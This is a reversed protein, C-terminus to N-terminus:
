LVRQQLLRKYHCIARVHSLQMCRLIEQSIPSGVRFHKDGVCVLDRDVGTCRQLEEELREIVHNEVLSSNENSFSLFVAFEFGEEARRVREVNVDQRKKRQYRIIIRRGVVLVGVVVIVVLIGSICWVAITRPRNCVSQVHSVIDEDITSYKGDSNTCMINKSQIIRNNHAVIWTVTGLSSCDKCSLPNGRLDVTASNNRFMLDFKHISSTDILKIENRTVDLRKFLAGSTIFFNIQALINGSLDIVELRTNNSFFDSPLYSLMNNALSINVLNFLPKMLERFKTENRTSMLGLSNYSLDLHHLTHISALLGPSLFEINNEALSVSEIPPMGSLVEVDLYVLNNKKLSVEKLHFSINSVIRVGTINKFRRKGFRSNCLNDATITEANALPTLEDMNYPIDHINAITLDFFCVHLGPTIMGSMDFTRLKKCPPYKSGRAEIVLGTVLNRFIVTEIHDCHQLLSRLDSSVAQVDSLDIYSLSTKNVMSWFHDDLKLGAKGVGLKKMSLSQLNPIRQPALMGKLETNSIDTSNSIDLVQLNGLGIFARNEFDNKVINIVLTELNVLNIFSDNRIYIKSNIIRKRADPRNYLM